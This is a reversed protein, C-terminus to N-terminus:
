TSNSVYTLLESSLILKVSALGNLNGILSFSVLTNSASYALKNLSVVLSLM